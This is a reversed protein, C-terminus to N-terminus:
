VAECGTPFHPPALPWGGLFKPPGRRQVLQLVSRLTDGCDVLMNAPKIDNHIVDLRHLYALAHVMHATFQVVRGAVIEGEECDHVLERVMHAMFQVVNGFAHINSDIQVL